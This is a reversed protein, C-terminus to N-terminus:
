QKDFHFKVAEDKMRHLNNNHFRKLDFLPGQSGSSSASNSGSHHPARALHNELLATARQRDEDTISHLTHASRFTSKLKQDAGRDGTYFGLQLSVVNSQYDTLLHFTVLVLHFHYLGYIYTFLSVLKKHKDFAPIGLSGLRSTRFDSSVIFQVHSEMAEADASTSAGAGSGGSVNVNVNLGNYANSAGLLSSYPLEGFLQGPRGAPGSGNSGSMIAQRAMNWQMTLMDTTNSSGSLELSPLSGDIGGEDVVLSHNRLFQPKEVLGGISAANAEPNNFFDEGIKLENSDGYGRGGGGGSSSSGLSVQGRLQSQQARIGAQMQMQALGSGPSM